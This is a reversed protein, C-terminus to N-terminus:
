NSASYITRTIFVDSFRRLPEQFTMRYLRSLLRSRGAVKVPLGGHRARRQWVIRPYYSAILSNVNTVVKTREVVAEGHQNINCSYFLRGIRKIMECYKRVQDERMEQMSQQNIVLDFRRDELLQRQSQPVLYARGPIPQSPYPSEASCLVVRDAGLVNTLHVASFFLIEEIDVIAYNVLPNHRLYTACLGGYGGGIELVAHGVGRSAPYGDHLDVLVGLYRLLDLSVLGYQSQFGIGHAGEGLHDGGLHQMLWEYEELFARRGSEQGLYYPLYGDSTLHYTHLRIDVLQEDSLERVYKTIRVFDQWYQSIPSGRRSEEVADRTAEIRKIYERIADYKM